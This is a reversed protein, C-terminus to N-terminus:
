KPGSAQRRRGAATSRAGSGASRPGRGSGGPRDAVLTVAAEVALGLAAGGAVDLPLHAGTYIRTLGVAPIAILVLTRGGRGLRPFAAAGLAAAVGAHGSLYGLGTAPRGRCHIGPLLAGPRPRRVVQKVLKALAWTGVGSALLRAALEHDGALWATAAAVPATGFAGLQMCAWAVPYVAGPLDNVARFADAEWPSVQHHRVVLATVAVVATGAGARVRPSALFGALSRPPIGAPGPAPIAAPAEKGPVTRPIM